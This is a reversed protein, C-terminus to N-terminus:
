LPQNHLLDAVFKIQSFLSHGLISMSRRTADPFLSHLIGVKLQTIHSSKRSDIVLSGIPHLVPPCNLVFLGIEKSSRFSSHLGSTSTTSSSRVCRFNISNSASRRSIVACQTLLQASAKAAISINEKSKIRISTRMGSVSPKIHVPRILCNVLSFALFIGIMATVAFTIGSSLALHKLAPM